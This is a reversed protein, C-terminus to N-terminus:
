LKVTRTDGSFTHFTAEAGDAFFIAVGEVDSSLNKLAPVLDLLAQKKERSSIFNAQGKLRIWQFDQSTTSLEFKPNAQLQKYTNNQTRTAFILKGEYEMVFGFPRVRPSDGDVTSIYFPINETLFKVVEEM